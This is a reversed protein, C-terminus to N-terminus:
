LCGGVYSRQPLNCFPYMDILDSVNCAHLLLCRETYLVPTSIAHEICYIASAYLLNCPWSICINMCYRTEGRVLKIRYLFGDLQAYTGPPSSIASVVEISYNTCEKFKGSQREGIYGGETVLETSVTTRPMAERKAWESPKAFNLPSHAHALHNIFRV